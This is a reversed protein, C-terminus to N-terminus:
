LTFRNINRKDLFKRSRNRSGNLMKKVTKKKLNVKQKKTGYGLAAHGLRKQISKKQLYYKDLDLDPAHRTQKRKM